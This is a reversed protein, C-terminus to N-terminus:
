QGYRCIRFGTDPRKENSYDRFALRLESISALKWSSDRIVHLSGSDPGTPDKYTKDLGAPYITYTDHVWESVNGGMDYLGFANPKFSGVPASVPYGDNYNELYYILVELSSQDAINVSNADPPFTNGWSYKLMTGGPQYRAAYEWEAETCLRYGIGLPNAPVLSGGQNIYVPVLGDKESLWNCFRAAQQWTVNVVPQSSGALKKGKYYGSSHKPSFALFERNTVEREGMFFPRTFTVKRMTENSRRGQERRSSGMTFSGTPIRRLIYGNSAQIVAGSAREQASVTPQKEQKVLAAKIEHPYGPRPTVKTRYTEYGPKKIEIEQEVSPLRLERSQGHSKGSVLVEADQPEVTIKVIGVIPVLDLNITKVEDPVIKVDKIIAEYGSKDVRLVHRTAPSMSLKLPTKGKAIRDINVEAGSPNSKVVLWGEPKELQINELIVSKNARVMFRTQWPKYGDAHLSVTYKGESLKLGIPTIGKNKGNIKVKAGQPISSISVNAWDPTLGFAFAQSKGGGKVQIQTKHKLYNEARIEVRHRGEKIEVNKFPTKGTERNNILIKAGDIIVSKNNLEHVKITVLGPLKEMVFNFTQHKEKNVTFPQKLIQYGQKKAIITHKGPFFLYEQRWKLAPLIGQLLIQDPAPDIKFTVHRVSNWFWLFAAPIAILVIFLIALFWKSRPSLLSMRRRKGPRFPLPEIEVIQPEDSSNLLM